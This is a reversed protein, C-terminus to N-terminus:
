RESTVDILLVELQLHLPLPLVNLEIFNLHFRKFFPINKSILDAISPDVLLTM